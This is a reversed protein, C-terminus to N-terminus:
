VVSESSGIQHTAITHSPFGSGPIRNPPAAGLLSAVQNASEFPADKQTERAILPQYTTLGARGDDTVDYKPGSPWYNGHGYATKDGSYRPYFALQWADPPGGDRGVAVPYIGPAHATEGIPFALLLVMDGYSCLVRWAFPDSPKPGYDGSAIEEVPVAAAMMCIGLIQDLGGNQRLRDIAGLVVRGGLSHSILYFRSQRAHEVMWDALFAGAELAPTIDTPYGAVPSFLVPHDGPWHFEVIDPPISVGLTGLNARMQAYSVRAEAYSNNFGHIFIAYDGRPLENTLRPIPPYAVAVPAPPHDRCGVEAEWNQRTTLVAAPLDGPRM